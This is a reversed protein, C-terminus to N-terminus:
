RRGRSAWELMAIFLGVLLVVGGLFIPMFVLCVERVADWRHLVETHTLNWTGSDYAALGAAAEIVAIAFLIPVIWRWTM